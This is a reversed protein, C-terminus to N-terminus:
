PITLCFCNKVRFIQFGGSKPISVTSGGKNSRWNFVWLLLCWESPRNRLCPFRATSRPFGSFIANHRLIKFGREEEREKHIHWTMKGVSSWHWLWHENPADFCLPTLSLSLSHSHPFHRPKTTQRPSAQCRQCSMRDGSLLKWPTDLYNGLWWAFKNIVVQKVRIDRLVRWFRLQLIQSFTYWCMNAYFSPLM